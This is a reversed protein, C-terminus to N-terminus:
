NALMDVWTHLWAMSKTSTPKQDEKYALWCQRDGFHRGVNRQVTRVLIQKMIIYKVTCCNGRQSNTKKLFSFYLKMLAYQHNIKYVVTDCEAATLLAM